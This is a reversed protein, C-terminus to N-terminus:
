MAAIRCDQCAANPCFDGEQCVKGDTEGLTTQRSNVDNGLQV